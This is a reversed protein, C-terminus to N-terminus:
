QLVLYDARLKRLRETIPRDEAARRALNDAIMADIQPLQAAAFTRADPLGAAPFEARFFDLYALVNVALWRDDAAGRDLDALIAPAKKGAAGLFHEIMRSGAAVEARRQAQAAEM